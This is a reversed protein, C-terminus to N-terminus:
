SSGTSPQFDFFALLAERDKVTEETAKPLANMVNAMKHVWCHQHFNDPFVEGLAVWFGLAGDDSVLVPATM